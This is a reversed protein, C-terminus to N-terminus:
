SWQKMVLSNRMSSAYQSKPNDKTILGKDSEHAKRTRWLPRGVSAHPTGAPESIVLSVSVTIVFFYALQQRM